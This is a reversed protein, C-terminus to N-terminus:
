MLIIYHSLQAVCVHSLTLEKGILLVLSFYERNTSTKM